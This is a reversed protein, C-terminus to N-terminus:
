TTTWSCHFLLPINVILFGVFYGIGFPVYVEDDDIDDDDNKIQHDINDDDKERESCDRGVMWPYGCLRPNGEFSSSPFTDFQGGRPIEGRLDNRAVSFESLFHLDTLSAPIEGSLRNGSMDLRELNILGSLQDPISGNLGNNSFDLVQLLKLEGIEAPINGSLRNSGVKVGRPLNFLRNYQLSDFLFPLALYSLDSSSNDSILAPLRGVERPLEGSLFNQTLNLVFLRPFSGVWRPIPGSIQNYSLNLVKLKRLKSIWSPIQGKLNCGGLTFIQLKEFGDLHLLDDDDPMPEDDFCRSMFLVALNECHRLIKLAGVVDSLYNDSVSFHSLTKLSAMCPPVRGVLKNYALRLATLSRCLCLSSPIHGVFTNNGLDVAELRQLRSFDLISIEGSFHNNRLLLTKLASCRSLSTPLHGSLNNTHLQLQELNSLRGIDPPIHGSFQNVHLEIITLNPLLSISNHIPGSLHNNALSIEKLNTLTYLDRPLYGSLSNFAARIVRLNSCTSFTGPSIPGTFQNLSFDLSALLPSASCLTSVPLPGTFSNSLNFTTIMPLHPTPNTILSGNFHNTSLDLTHISNPLFFAIPGLHGSLRNGSLNLYSLSTLNPLFSPTLTGSLGRAPLSLHTIAYSVSTSTTNFNTCTVGEWRCCDPSSWHELPPSSSVSRFFSSLSDREVENCGSSLDHTLVFLYLCLCLDLSLRMTSCHLHM